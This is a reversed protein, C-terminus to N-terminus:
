EEYRVLKWDNDERCFTLIEMMSTAVGCKVFKVGRSADVETGMDLVLINDHPLEPAFVDWQGPDINGNIMDTEDEVSPISIFIEQALHEDRFISDTVFHRYFDLFAGQRYANVDRIDSLKWGDSQRDFGFSRMTGSHLNVWQMQARSVHQGMYDYPDSDEDMFMIFNDQELRRVAEQVSRGNRLTEVVQGTEDMVPVPYAVRQLQFSRRHLFTYLFDMFSEDVAETLPSDPVVYVLTDEEESEDEEEQYTESVADQSDPQRGGTCSAIGLLVLLIFSGRFFPTFHMGFCNASM